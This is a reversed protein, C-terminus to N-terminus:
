IHLIRADTTMSFATANGLSIAMAITTSIINKMLKM